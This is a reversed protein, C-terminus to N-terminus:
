KRRPRGNKRARTAARRAHAVPAVVQDGANHSLDASGLPLLASVAAFARQAVGYVIREGSQIFMGVLLGLIPTWLDVDKPQVKTPDLPSNSSAPTIFRHLVLYFVVTFLIAEGIRYWLGSWFRGDDFEDGCQRKKRLSNAIFFLAGLVSMNMTVLIRIACIQHELIPSGPVTKGDILWQLANQWSLGALAVVNAIACLLMAYGLGVLFRSYKAANRKALRRKKEAPTDHRDEHARCAQDCERGRVAFALGLLAAAVAIFFRRDYWALGGHWNTWTLAATVLMVAVAFCTGAAIPLVVALEAEVPNGPEGHPRFLAKLLSPNSRNPRGHGRPGAPARTRVPPASRAGNTKQSASVSTVPEHNGADDVLTATRRDSM